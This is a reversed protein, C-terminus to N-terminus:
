LVMKCIPLLSGEQGISSLYAQKYIHFIIHRFKDRPLGRTQQVEAEGRKGSGPMEQLWLIRFVPRRGVQM